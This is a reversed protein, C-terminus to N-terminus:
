DAALLNAVTGLDVPKVLHARFGASRSRQRDADQGYGTLAVVRTAALRPDDKIERAVEYGDMGPLGIDLLVVHPRFQRAAQLASPGDHATWVTHGLTELAAAIGRAADVNDDVVLVRRLRSAPPGTGNQATAGTPAPQDNEEAETLPLTVVFESGQGPGDSAASVAGGHLHILGRVLTLGIGLGGQTRDLSRDGQVFPDFVHPLMESPIGMGNDAVRIVASPGSREGLVRIRGGPETYKTANALLNVVVQEIRLPDAEVWLGPPVAVTLHHHREDIMPRAADVARAISEALELPQKRLAIRGRTIRSVDLLDDILRALHRVQRVLIERCRHQLDPDSPRLELLQLSTLIPALPNRLEHALMALFEDKRRDSDHAERYLRANDLALGARRALEKSLHLESDTYRRDPQNSVLTLTGLCRGRAKLPVVIADVAGIARILDRRTDDGGYIAFLYQLADEGASAEAAPGSPLTVHRPDDRCREGLEQLRLGQRPDAHATSLRRVPGEEDLVDAIAWDALRPVALGTATSLTAEFDLAADLLKGADALTRLSNETRKRDTIDRQIGIFCPSDFVGDGVRFASLDIDKVDGNKTRSRIEMRLLGSRALEEFVESFAEEGLPVSLTKGLLEDASYGLLAEHAGNQELYRGDTDIIAIGDSSRDFIERYLALREEAQKRQVAFGVHRAVIEALRVEEPRFAHPRDFYVMFKGLLREGACLPIFALAQIGEGLITDLLAALSAEARVDAFTIPAAGRCDRSWPSHGEVARRYGDSLGRWAKFRMVGDADFLLIAARDASLGDMLAQLAAEYIERLSSARNVAEAVQYVVQLQEVQQPFDTRPEGPAPPPSASKPDPELGGSRPLHASSGGPPRTSM